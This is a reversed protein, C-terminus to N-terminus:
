DGTQPHSSAVLKILNDLSLLVMSEGRDERMVVIPIEEAKAAAVAQSYWKALEGRRKCEIRLAKVKGDAGGDRAQGLIRTFKEGLAASFEALVEREYAAGKRRQPKGM